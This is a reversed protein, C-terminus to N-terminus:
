VGFGSGISGFPITFALISNGFALQSQFNNAFPNSQKSFSWFGGFAGFVPTAALPSSSQNSSLVGISTGGLSSSSSQGFTRFSTSSTGFAPSSSDGFDGMSSVFFTTQYNPSPSIIPVFDKAKSAVRSRILCGLLVFYLLLLVVLLVGVVILIIDKTSLKRGHGKSTPSSSPTVLSLSVPCSNSGSHACLQLNGVFASSTFKQLLSNPMPGSLNNYSVNFSSLNALNDLSVPIESSFNNHSLDLLTLTSINSITAPILSTFKNSKLNLVSLNELKEGSFWRNRAIYRAIFDAAKNARPRVHYFVVNIPGALSRIDECISAIDWPPDSGGFSCWKLVNACDGEIGISSLGARSLAERVVLAEDRLVCAIAASSHSFAADCNVKFSGDEM